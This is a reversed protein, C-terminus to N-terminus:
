PTIEITIEIVTSKLSEIYNGKNRETNSNFGKAIVFIWMKYKNKGSAIDFTFPIGYYNYYDIDLFGSFADVGGWSGAEIQSKYEEYKPFLEEMLIYDSITNPNIDAPLILNNNDFTLRVNDSRGKKLIDDIMEDTVPFTVDQYIIDKDNFSYSSFSSNVMPNTYDLLNSHNAGGRATTIKPLRVAAKKASKSNNNFYYYVDYGVFLYEDGDEEQNYGDFRLTFNAEDYSLNRAEQFFITSDEIGCTNQFLLILITLLLLHLYKM